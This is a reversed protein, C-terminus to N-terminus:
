FLLALDLTQELAQGEAAKSLRSRHGGSSSAAQHRMAMAGARKAPAKPLGSADALEVGVADLGFADHARGPLVDPLRDAM